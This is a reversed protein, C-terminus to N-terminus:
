GPPSTGAALAEQRFRDIATPHDRYEQRGATTERDLVDLFRRQIAAVTAADGDWRALAARIMLGLLHDPVAAMISDAEITAAARDGTHMRLMASHYRADLDKPDLAEYALLAMPAFRAVTATDGAESARMVRNYLTDFRARPSLQSIDPAGVGSGGASATSPPGGAGRSRMEQWAALGLILVLM